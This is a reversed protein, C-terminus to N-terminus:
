GSLIRELRFEGSTIAVLASEPQLDCEVHSLIYLLIEFFSGPADSELVEDRNHM